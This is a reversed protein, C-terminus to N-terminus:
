WKNEHIMNKRKHMCGTPFWDCQSSETSLMDWVGKQSEHFRNKIIIVTCELFYWPSRHQNLCFLFSTTINLLHLAPLYTNLNTPKYFFLLVDLALRMRGSVCLEEASKHADNEYTQLWTKTPNTPNQLDICKWKWMAPERQPQADPRKVSALFLFCLQLAGATVCEPSRPESALVSEQNSYLSHSLSIPASFVPGYKYGPIPIIWQSWLASWAGNWWRASTASHSSCAREERRRSELPKAFPFCHPSTIETFGGLTTM